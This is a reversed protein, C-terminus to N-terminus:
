EESQSVSAISELDSFYQRQLEANANKLYFIEREYSKKNAYIEQLRLYSNDGFSYLFNIYGALIFIFLLGFLFASTFFVGFHEKTITINEYLEENQM